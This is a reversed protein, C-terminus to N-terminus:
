TIEIWTVMGGAHHELMHCHFLWKGPSDAVFAITARRGPDLLETDRWPGGDVPDGNRRIVTFHTGHLHMAHPWRTENVLDIVVTRGVETRLLPRDPMGAVGNFAWVRGAAALERMGMRRGDLMASAMRGMAGGEMLLEATVANDLDLDTRIPNPAPATIPPLPDRRWAPEALYDLHAVPVPQDDDSVELIPSVLGPELGLDVMLDVRQGPAVRLPSGALATPAVPQGDYAIVVPDHKPFALTMVRANAANLVRLRIRDGSRVAFRHESEGNVTVWNGLRGAHAWDRIQGFSAEHIAGSQDLRWDDIVFVLDRDVQPPDPEDVVLVGYLGRALQEWSRSHTHYWYTGADPLAFEYDFQGGPPVADQTLGSVGDMANPVRVGHWHISTPQPLQNVLRLRLTDGQRGRLLPGPSRGDYGWIATGQGGEPYLPTQGERATLTRHAGALAVTGPWGTAALGGASLLGGQIVQRRNM